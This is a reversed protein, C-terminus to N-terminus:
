AATNEAWSAGNQGNPADTNVQSAALCEGGLLEVAWDVLWIPYMLFGM